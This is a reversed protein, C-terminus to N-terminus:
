NTSHFERDRCTTGACTILQNLWLGLAQRQQLRVPSTDLHLSTIQSPDVVLDYHERSGDAYQILTSAPAEAAEPASRIAFYAPLEFLSAAGPWREVLFRKRWGTRGPNSLLAAFSTGDMSAGSTVRAIDMVTPALDTNLVMQQADAPTLWPAAVILPLRISEEHAVLKQPLRHEGHLFGNDSTFILVTRSLEGLETLKTILAGLLDDVARMSAARDRYQQTLNTMDAGTLAPRLRMWAPKDSMDTENVSPPMPLPLSVSGLHRMAPRITWRWADSYDSFPLDPFVEQHPAGPMVALFFPAADSAAEFRDLFATAKQALVDTQYEAPATGVASVVGNENAVYQYMRSAYPDLYGYWQNWGPPVYQTDATNFVGDRNIDARGYGNLYKGAYGTQYGAGQLWTALTSSDNFATVGGFPSENRATGHNHAYRGTLLTARSPTCVPTTCFANRFNVGRNVFHAQLNPALGSQLLTDTMRRDLDDVMVLVINPKMATQAHAM